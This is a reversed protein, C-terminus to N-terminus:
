ETKKWRWADSNIKAETKSHGIWVGEMSSSDTIRLKFAGFYGLKDKKAYWEGFLYENHVRGLLVYRIGKATFEAYCYRGFQYVHANSHREIDTSFASSGSDWIQDWKGRLSAPDDRFLGRVPAKDLILIVWPALRLDLIIRLVICVVLPASGLLLSGLWNQM